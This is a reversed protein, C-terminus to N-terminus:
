LEGEFKFQIPLRVFTSVKRGIYWDSERMSAEPDTKRRELFDIIAIFPATKRNIISENGQFMTIMEDSVKTFNYKIYNIPLEKSESMKVYSEKWTSSKM